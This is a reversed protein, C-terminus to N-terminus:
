LLAESNSISLFSFAPLYSQREGTPAFKNAFFDPCAVFIHHKYWRKASM